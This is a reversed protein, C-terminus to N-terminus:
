ASIQMNEWFANWSVMELIKMEIGQMATAPSPPPFDPTPPQPYGTPTLPGQSLSKRAVFDLYNPKDGPPVIFLIFHAM